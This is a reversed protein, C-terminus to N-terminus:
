CAKRETEGPQIGDRAVESMLAALNGESDHFFAMWLDHNPMRVVMRPPAEFEVGRSKLLETTHNIDRTNYYIISSYVAEGHKSSGLMLRMDGVKFFAMDSAEFLLPLGLADRYFRIARALDKITIAVQGISSIDRSTEPSM